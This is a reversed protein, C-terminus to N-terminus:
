GKKNREEANFCDDFLNRKIRVLLQNTETLKFIQLSNMGKILSVIEEDIDLSEIVEQSTGFRIYNIIMKNLDIISRLDVDSKDDM